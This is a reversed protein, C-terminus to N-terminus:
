PRTNAEYTQHVSISVMGVFNIMQRADSGADNVTVDTLESSVFRATPAKKVKKKCNSGSGGPNDSLDVATGM